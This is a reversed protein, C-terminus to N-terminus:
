LAGSEELHDPESSEVAGKNKLREAGAGEFLKLTDGWNNADMKLNKACRLGRDGRKGYISALNEEAVVTGNQVAERSNRLAKTLDGKQYINQFGLTEDNVIGQVPITVDGLRASSDYGGKANCFAATAVLRQGKPSFRDKLPLGNATDLQIGTLREMEMADQMYHTKALKLKEVDARAALLIKQLIRETEKADNTNIGGLRFSDNWSKFLSDDSVIKESPKYHLDISSGGCKFSTLSHTVGFKADIQELVLELKRPDAPQSGPECAFVPVTLLASLLIIAKM